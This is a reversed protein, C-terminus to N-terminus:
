FRNNEKMSIRRKLNLCIRCGRVGRKLDYKILNSGKLEHGRLCHTKRSNIGTFTNGRLVNVGITVAELHEPNVCARNRCLHDITLGDPIEGKFLEYSFRHVIVLKNSNWFIGYGNQLITGKWEWCSKTKKIKSIFRMITKPNNM